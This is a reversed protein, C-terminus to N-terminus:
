TAPQTASAQAAPAQPEVTAVDVSGEGTLHETVSVGGAEATLELPAVAVTPTVVCGSHTQFAEDSAPQIVPSVGADPWPLACSWIWTAALGSADVRCASMTTLPTRTPM